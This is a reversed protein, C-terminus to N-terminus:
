GASQLRELKEYLAQSRELALMVIQDGPEAWALAAELSDIEQEHHEIQEPRSGARLLEDRIVAFVAGPERGRYYKALESVYVRDLGRGWASRTLERILEDPRDGAQGFCLGRRRAPLRGAMELLAQMAQPNHAFDVIITRGAVSYINGRGPNEHQSMSTLGARIDDLSIGLSGTLAAAALANAINHRAAGGVTIPVDAVDILIEPEKDGLLTM